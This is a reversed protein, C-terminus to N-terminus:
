RKRKPEGDTQELQEPEPQPEPQQPQPETPEVYGWLLWSKAVDDPVDAIDGPVYARGAHCVRYHGIVTVLM